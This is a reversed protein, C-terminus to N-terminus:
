NSYKKARNVAIKMGAYMVVMEMQTGDEGKTADIIQQVADLFDQRREPAWTNILSEMNKLAERGEKLMSM